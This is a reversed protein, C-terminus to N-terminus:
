EPEIVEKKIKKIEKEKEQTEKETQVLKPEKESLEQSM